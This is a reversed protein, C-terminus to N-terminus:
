AHVCASLHLCLARKLRILRQQQQQQEQVAAVAQEEAHRITTNQTHLVTCLLV